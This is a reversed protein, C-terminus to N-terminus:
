VSSRSPPTAMRQHLAPKTIAPSTTRAAQPPDGPPADLARDDGARDASGDLPAGVCLEVVGTGAGDGVAGVPVPVGLPSGEGDAPLQAAPCAWTVTEGPSAGARRNHTRGPVTTDITRAGRASSRRHVATRLEAGTNTTADPQRTPGSPAAWAESRHAPVRPPLALIVTSAFAGSTAPAARAANM